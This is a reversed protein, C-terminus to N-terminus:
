GDRDDGSRDAVLGRAPYRVDSPDLRDVPDVPDRLAGGAAHRAGRALDPLTTRAPERDDGRRRRGPTGWRDTRDVRAADGRTSQNPGWAISCLVCCARAAIPRRPARLPDAPVSTADM